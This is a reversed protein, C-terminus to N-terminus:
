FTKPNKETQALQSPSFCSSPHRSPVHKMEYCSAFDCTFLVTTVTELCLWFTQFVTQTAMLCQMWVLIMANFLFIFSDIELNWGTAWTCNLMFSSLVHETSGTIRLKKKKVTGTLIEKLVFFGVNQSPEYQARLELFTTSPKQLSQESQVQRM